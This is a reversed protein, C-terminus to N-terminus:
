QPSNPPGYPEMDMISKTCQNPCTLPNKNKFVRKRKKSQRKTDKTYLTYKPASKTLCQQYININELLFFLWATQFMNSSTPFLYRM